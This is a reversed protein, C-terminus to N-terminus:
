RRGARKRCRGLPIFTEYGMNEVIGRRNEFRQTAPQIFASRYGYEGLLRPLCKGPIGDARAETISVHLRPEIGCLTAVLAKSTHPVVAYAREAVISKKALEVLHPTTPLAPNYVSVSRARTSELLIIVVNRRKAQMTRPKLMADMTESVVVEDSSLSEEPSWAASLAVTRTANRAFATNQEKLPPLLSVVLALATVAGWKAGFPKPPPPPAEDLDFRPHVWKAWALFVAWPVFLVAAASGGMMWWIYGPVESAVVDFTMTLQSLTFYILQFDLTSGTAMFFRFAIVDILTVIIAMAQMGVFALYARKKGRSTALLVLGLATFAFLFFVDSKYVDIWRLPERMPGRDFVRITRLVLHLAAVPLVLGLAFGWELASGRKLLTTLKPKLLM